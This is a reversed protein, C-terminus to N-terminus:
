RFGTELELRSVGGKLGEGIVYGAGLIAGGQITAGFLSPFYGPQGLFQPSGLRQCTREGPACEELISYHWSIGFANTDELVMVRLIAGNAQVHRLTGTGACGVTLFILLITAVM